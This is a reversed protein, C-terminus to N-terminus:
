PYRYCIMYTNRPRAEKYAVIVVDLIGSHLDARQPHQTGTTTTTPKEPDLQAKIM